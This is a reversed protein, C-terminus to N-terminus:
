SHHCGNLQRRFDRWSHCWSCEVMVMLVTGTLWGSPRSWLVLYFFISWRTGGVEEEGKKMQETNPASFLCVMNHTRVREGSTRIIGAMVLHHDTFGRSQHQQAQGPWSGWPSVCHFCVKVFEEGGGSSVSLLFPFFPSLLPSSLVLLSFLSSSLLLPTCILSSSLLCPSFLLSSVMWGTSAVWGTIHSQQSVILFILILFWSWDSQRWSETKSVATCHSWFGSWHIRWVQEQIVISKWHNQKIINLFRTKALWLSKHRKHSKWSFWM